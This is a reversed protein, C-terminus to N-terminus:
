PITTETNQWIERSSKTVKHSIGSQVKFDVIGVKLTGTTCYILATLDVNASAKCSQTNSSEGKHDFIYVCSFFFLDCDALCISNFPFTLLYCFDFQILNFGLTIDLPAWDEEKREWKRRLADGAPMPLLETASWFWTTLRWTSEM